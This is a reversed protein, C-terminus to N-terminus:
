HLEQYTFYCYLDVIFVNLPQTFPFKICKSRRLRNRELGQLSFLLLLLVRDKQWLETNVNVGPAFLQYIIQVVYQRIKCSNYFQKRDDWISFNTPNSHELGSELTSLVDLDQDHRSVNLDQHRQKM